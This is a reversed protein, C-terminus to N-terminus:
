VARMVSRFCFLPAAVVPAATQRLVPLLFSGCRHPTVGFLALRATREARGPQGPLRAALPYSPMRRPQAAARRMGNRQIALQMRRSATVNTGDDWEDFQHVNRACVSDPEPRCLRVEVFKAARLLVASQPFYHAVLEAATACDKAQAVRQKETLIRGTGACIHRPHAWTTRTCIHPPTLGTGTCIHRPHAWDRHLHPPPSGLGPASTAHTLGTGTCIHRPHAWDRHLHPPPSGLGPASTAPTLGTGALHPPPSGLGAAGPATRRRLVAQAYSLV